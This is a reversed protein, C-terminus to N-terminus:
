SKKPYHSETGLVEDITADWRFKEYNVDSIKKALIASGGFAPQFPFEEQGSPNGELYMRVPSFLSTRIVHYGLSPPFLAILGQDSYRYFDWPTEHLPWAFHTSHFTLGDINLIRNIEMAVVWPMALHELVAVSFVADFKKNKFYQSLKHADGVVDTNSDSYIDFGTYSKAGPFLSRKSESGPCVIRSGIELVDLNNDNVYNIFENYSNPEGTDPIPLEPKTNFFNIKKNIVQEGAKAKIIISYQIKNPIYISFGCKETNACDPFAKVIDPRNHWTTIPITNDGLIIQVKDLTKQKHLIWGILCIGNDDSWSRDVHCILDDSDKKEEANSTKKKFYNMLDM